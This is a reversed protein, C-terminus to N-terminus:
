PREHGNGWDSCWYLYAKTQSLVGLIQLTWALSGTDAAELWEMFDTKRLYPDSVRALRRRYHGEVGLLTEHVAALGDPGLSKLMRTNHSKSGLLEPNFGLDKLTGVADVIKDSPKKILVKRMGAKEAFPNYQAMVAILEVHRRGTLMLTDRVLRAGLGITRYKPHVIVRSILAWDRNLEKLRPRYGVAKVRGAAAPAPYTYAIVGVLEGGQKLSFFGLPAVVGHSRYHLHDLRMYEEKSSEQVSIDRAATCGSPEVNAHYEVSIEDGWGKHIHISPCLDELLDTHTTAVVLTAGSRRALKQVNYAVIRATTRDLTSCFEDCLWYRRGMDLLQAIRFRYRQGDSLHSPQRLFLYADNLGVKSLLRLAETFSGGVLDILPEDSPTELETMYAAEDGLDDRLARLLVSKGSGSDGTIYVVDGQALRVEFDRYLVHDQTEDVGLGFAEAVEVTRETLPTQTKFGIDYVYCGRQKDYRRVRRGIRARSL